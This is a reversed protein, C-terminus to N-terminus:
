MLYTHMLHDYPIFTNTLVAFRIRLILLIAQKINIGITNNSDYM